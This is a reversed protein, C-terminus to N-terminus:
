ENVAIEILAPKAARSTSRSGAAAFACIASISCTERCARASTRVVADPMRSTRTAVSIALARDTSSAAPISDRIGDASGGSRVLDALQEAVHDALRDGVDDPVAAGAHARDRESRGPRPVRHRDRADGVRRVAAATQRTQALPHVRGTSASM